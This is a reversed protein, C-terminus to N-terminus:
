LFRVSQEAESPPPLFRRGEKSKSLAKRLEFYETWKPDFPHAESRVKVHRRIPTSSAKHLTVGKRGTFIWDRGGIRRFYTKKIWGLSKNPHRHRLWNWILSWLTHDVHGFTAKAVIHRHYNAWGRIVPNLIRILEDHTIAKGQKLIDRVKDLFAKVNKQAPKILLKDGYKRVNQGLFDFGERIHVIRTKEKSLELGRVRLFSEVVPRVDNELLEKSAGTIVFDDAYRVFHVKQGKRFKKMLLDELGDLAMNALTPSAIGGQPTGEVTPFLRKDEVYGAALWKRLMEKDMPVHTQLWEHSIHDFCGTIDGELIWQASRKRSLANFCQDIADATSRNPRFGYSNPDATEEAIPLFAMLHLAQMARDKMTPISLPRLKGNKKPIYIRRLPLARYGRRKLMEAARTKQEPTTWLVRDVGPTNKGKNSTVWYVAFRRAMWSRTLIRQLTKVKSRKGERFAKAIRLQLKRVSPIMLSVCILEWRLRIDAM